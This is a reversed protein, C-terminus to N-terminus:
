DRIPVIRENLRYQNPTIGTISKFVRYFHTATEFGCREAIVQINLNTTILQEKAMIIRKVNIYTTVNMTTLKRFVRSFHATSVGAIEALETLSINREPHENINKLTELIWIPGIDINKELPMSDAYLYRNIQLLLQSYIHWISDRYGIMRSSLENAIQTMTLELMDRIEQPLELKYTKNKRAQEFCQISSYSHDLKFGGMLAPAFFVVSSVIPDEQSPLSRHITNGPIIFLDGQKKEYWTHDVFIIGKGQHVYILEYYDHVHEPLENDPMKITKYVIEFPFTPDGVFSKRIPKM